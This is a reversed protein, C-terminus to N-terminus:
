PIGLLRNGALWLSIGPLKELLRSDYPGLRGDMLLHFARSVYLEDDHLSYVMQVASGSLLFLKLLVFVTVWFWLLRHGSHELNLYPIRIKLSDM